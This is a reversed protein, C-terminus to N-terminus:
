LLKRYCILGSSQWGLTKYFSAAGDNDAEALLQLRTLGHETSWREAANLLIKGIGRRRANSSVIMDELIGAPGGEATSITTQVSCMGVVEGKLEAVLVIAGPQTLLQKLGAEQLAANPVFDSEIQFLDGLLTTLSEIDEICAPRVSITRAVM